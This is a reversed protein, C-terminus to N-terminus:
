GKLSEQFQEAYHFRSWERAVYDGLTGSAAAEGEAEQAERELFRHAIRNTPLVRNESIVWRRGSRTTAIVFVALTGSSAGQNLATIVDQPLRNEDGGEMTGLPYPSADPGTPLLLVVNFARGPGLNRAVYFWGAGFGPGPPPAFRWDVIVRPKEEEAFRAETSRYQEQALNFQERALNFLERSTRAQEETRHAYWWLVLLNDFLLLGSAASLRAPWRQGFDLHRGFQYDLLLYAITNTLVIVILWIWYRRLIALM